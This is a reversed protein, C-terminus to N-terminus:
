ASGFGTNYPMRQLLLDKVLESSQQSVIRWNVGFGPCCKLLRKTVERRSLTTPQQTHDLV